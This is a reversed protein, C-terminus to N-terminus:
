LHLCILRLVLLSYIHFPGGDLVNGPDAAYGMHIYGFNDIVLSPYALFGPFLYQGSDLTKLVVGIVRCPAKYFAFCVIDGHNFWSKGCTKGVNNYAAYLIRM